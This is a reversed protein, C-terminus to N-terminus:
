FRLGGNVSVWRPREWGDASLAEGFAPGLRYHVGAVPQQVYPNFLQLSPDLLATLVTDDPRRVVMRNFLNGVILRAFVRLSGGGVAASWNVSADTAVSTDGRRANRSGFYYLAAVPPTAYGPNPLFPGTVVPAEATQPTGSTVRELLAVQTQLGRLRPLEYSVWVRLNHREDIALDGSPYAWAERVFEPYSLVDAVGPGGAESEGDFNGHTQSLTYNAGLTVTARWGYQLQAVLARYRRALADSNGVIGLDYSQGRPDVTRGTTLDKREVYFDHFRRFVGDVRASGGSGLRRGLGVTLDDASPTSLDRGVIRNVGPYTPADRLPLNSGGSAQFWGFIRELADSTSTLVTAGPDINISPGMYVYRFTASRGAATGLDAIASTVGMVYRSYGAQVTLAGRGSPDWTASLRPSWAVSDGVLVGGQDRARTGDARVGATFAWRAGARWSDSIFGSLTRLRSGGSPTLVPNWQIYTASAQTPTTGAQVVPYLVGDRMITGNVVVRYASGSQWNDSQRQDEFLDGGGVITHAGFAKSSWYITARAMADHNDRRDVTSGGPGCVGCFTPANWRAGDRSRDIILTGRVLDTFQSGFGVIGYQRHSYQGELFFRSALVGTYTASLLRDRERRPSLSALDMVIGTTANSIKLNRGAYSSRLTHAPTASWTGKVEFRADREGEEYALGTHATSQTIAKRQWRGAAFFWLRDRVGPGGVTAEYTPVVKSAPRLGRTHEYPTLARWRDNNLTMRFSGAFDNGGSRTVANAVGGSLRGFEAPLNSTWVRVEEIADEIVLPRAQNRITENLVVGDVLFLGEYSMAGSFTVAGGPGSDTTGPALLVAGTVDREVPLTDILDARYSVGVPAGLTFDAPAAVAVSETLGSLSLPIDVTATAGVQVRISLLTPAFGARESSVAYQGPPLFPIVYDGQDSSTATRRGQLAPSSVAVLAGAVALGSPDFVRGSITGTAPTQALADAALLAVLLTHLITPTRM